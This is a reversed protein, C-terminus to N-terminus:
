RAGSAAPRFSGSISASPRVMLRGEHITLSMPKEAYIDKGAQCAHICVLARWHDPTATVIADVDKRELLRRYDQYPEAKFRAAFKRARPLNVDAVAVIRADKSGSVGGVVASGQRGVGIGGIGIRDNAGAPRARGVRRFSDPLTDGRGGGSNSRGQSFLSAYDCESPEEHEHDKEFHHSLDTSKYHRRCSTLRAAPAPWYLTPRPTAPSLGGEEPGLSAQRLRRAIGGLHCITASRHGIEVDSICRRRSKICDLWNRMHHDSVELHLAKESLPEAALSKPVTNFRGRDMFLEGSTGIFHGGGLMGMKPDLKLLIGSAYRYTIPSDFSNGHPEIEVPGTDDTGLAWQVMDLGHAGWNTLLGGSYERIWQWGPDKYTLYRNFSFPALETQGCWCDWDMGAPAPEDKFHYESAPRAGPFLACVVEKIQGLRGNRILECAQRNRLM